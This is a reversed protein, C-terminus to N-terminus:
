VDVRVVISVLTAFLIHYLMELSVATSIQDCVLFPAFTSRLPFLTAIKSDLLNPERDTMPDANECTVFPLLTNNTGEM